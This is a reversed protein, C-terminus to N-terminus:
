ISDSCMRFPIQDDFLMFDARFDAIYFKLVTNLPYGPKCTKSDKFESCIELFIMNVNEKDKLPKTTQNESSAM